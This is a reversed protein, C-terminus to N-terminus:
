ECSLLDNMEYMSVSLIKSEMPTKNAKQLLIKLYSLFDGLESSQVEVSQQTADKPPTKKKHFLSISPKSLFHIVKKEEDNFLLRICLELEQMKKLYTLVDLKYNFKKLGEEFLLNKKFKKDCKLCPCVCKLLYEFLSFPLRFQKNRKQKLTKFVKEKENLTSFRLFSDSLTKTKEEQTKNQDLLNTLSNTHKKLQIMEFPIQITRMGNKTKIKITKNRKEAKSDEKFQFVSQMISQSAYFHNIYRVFIYVVLLIQSFISSMNAAFETLKMYKRITFSTERAVRIYIKGMIDYNEVKTELRNYGKSAQYKELYSFTTFEVSKSTDFLYNEYSRLTEKKFFINLKSLKDMELVEFENGIYRKIPHKHNYVDVSTEVFHIDLRCEYNNFIRQILEAQKEGKETIRLRIDIYNFVADRYWGHLNFNIDQPCFAKNLQNIDFYDDFENYFDEKTCSKMPIPVRKKNRVRDQTLVSDHGAEIKFLEHLSIDGEYGECTLGVAFNINQEVLNISPTEESELSFLILSMNKRKLFSPLNCFVYTLLVVIYLIFIIGGTSSHYKFRNKYLFNIEVGFYDSKKLM